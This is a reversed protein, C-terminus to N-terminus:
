EGERRERSINIYEAPAMVNGDQENLVWSLTQIIATWAPGSAKSERVTKLERRITRESKM